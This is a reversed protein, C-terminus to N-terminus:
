ISKSRFRKETSTASLFGIHKKGNILKEGSAYIKDNITIFEVVEEINNSFTFMAAFTSLPKKVVSLLGTQNLIDYSVMFTVSPANALVTVTHSPITLEIGNRAIAKIEYTYSDQNVFERKFTATVDIQTSTLMESNCFTADKKKNDRTVCFTFSINTFTGNCLDNYSFNSREFVVHDM